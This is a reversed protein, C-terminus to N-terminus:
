SLYLIGVLLVIHLHAFFCSIGTLLVQQKSMIFALFNLSQAQADEASGSLVLTGDIPVLGLSDPHFFLSGGLNM